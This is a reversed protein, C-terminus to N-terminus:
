AKYPEDECSSERKLWDGSMREMLEKEGEDETVSLKDANYDIGQKNIIRMKAIIKDHKNM